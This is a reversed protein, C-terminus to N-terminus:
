WFPPLTIPKMGVSAKPTYLQLQDWLGDFNM